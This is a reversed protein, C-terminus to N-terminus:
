EQRTCQLREWYFGTKGMAQLPILLESSGNPSGQEVTSNSGVLRLVTLASLFILLVHSTFCFGCLLRDVASCM